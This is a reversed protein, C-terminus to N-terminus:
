GKKHTKQNKKHQLSEIGIKLLSNITYNIKRKIYTVMANM